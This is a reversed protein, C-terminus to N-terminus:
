CYKSPNPPPDPLLGAEVRLALVTRIGAEDLHADRFLGDERDALAAYTAEALEPKL